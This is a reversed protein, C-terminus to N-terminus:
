ECGGVLGYIILLFTGWTISFTYNGVLGSLSLKLRRKTPRSIPLGRLGQQLGFGEQPERLLGRGVHLISTLADVSRYRRVRIPVDRQTLLDYRPIQEM